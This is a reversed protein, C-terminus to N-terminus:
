CFELLVIFLTLLLVVNLFQRFYDLSRHVIQSTLECSYVRWPLNITWRGQTRPGFTISNVFRPIQEYAEICSDLNLGLGYKESDCQITLVSLNSSNLNAVLSPQPATLLSAVPISLNSAISLNSSLSQAPNLFLSSVLGTFLFLGQFLISVLSMM